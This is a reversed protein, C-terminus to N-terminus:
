GRLAEILMAISRGRHSIANKDSAAMEGFTETRGLPQFIPDYGHGEIGRMPWVFHGEARGDFVYEAGNPFRLVLTSVFRCIWPQEAGSALLLNHSKEMAMKFDRGKPTEAWDATYVGPEKGLADIEIGSDDALCPLGSAEGAARAKIRANEVFTTGTEEPEPLNLEKSSVLEFPFDALLARMEELKGSNHTALVLKQGIRKIM